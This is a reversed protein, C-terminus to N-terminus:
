SCSTKCCKGAWWSHNTLQGRLGKRGKSGARWRKRERWSNRTSRRFKHRASDKITPRLMVFCLVYDPQLCWSRPVGAAHWVNWFPNSSDTYMIQAVIIHVHIYVLIYACCLIQKFLASWSRSYTCIAHKQHFALKLGSLHWVVTPFSLYLVHWLSGMDHWTVYWIMYEQRVISWSIVELPRCLLQWLIRCVNEQSLSPTLTSWHFTGLKTHDLVEANRSDLALSWDRRTSQLTNCLHGLFIPRRAAGVPAVSSSALGSIWVCATSVDQLMTKRNLIVM